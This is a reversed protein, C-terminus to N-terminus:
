GAAKLAALVEDPDLLELANQQIKVYKVTGDRGIIFYARRAYRFVPSAEDTQMAGYAPLMARRFDGLLLHRVNNQKTFAELTAPHDASVGM